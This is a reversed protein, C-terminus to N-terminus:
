TRRDAVSSAAWSDPKWLVLRPYEDPDGIVDKYSVFGQGMIMGVLEEKYQGSKWKLENNVDVHLRIRIDDSLKSSLYWATELTRMAEMVLKQRLSPYTPVKDTHITVAGGLGTRHAVIATAFFTKNGHIKSDTGVNMTRGEKAHKALFDDLIVTDNEYFRRWRWESFDAYTHEQKSM